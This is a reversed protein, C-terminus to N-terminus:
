PPALDVSDIGINVHRVLTESAYSQNCAVTRKKTDNSLVFADIRFSTQQWDNDNFTPRWECNVTMWVYANANNENHVIVDIYSTKAQTQYVVNVGHASDGPSAALGSGASLLLLSLFVASRPRTPMPKEQDTPPTLAISTWGLSLDNKMALGICGPSAAAGLLFTGEPFIAARPKAARKPRNSWM